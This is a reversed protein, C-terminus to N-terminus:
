RHSIVINDYYVVSFGPQLMAGVGVTGDSIPSSTDIFDITQQDNVFVKIHNNEVDVKITYWTSDYNEFPVTQIIRGINGPLSKVLVIDNYPATRFDIGYHTSDDIARFVIIKDIVNVGMIDLQFTFDEPTTINALYKGNATCSLVGNEVVWTGGLPSWNVSTTGSDQFDDKFIPRQTTTSNIPPSIYVPTLVPAAGFPPQPVNIQIRDPLKRTVLNSYYLVAKGLMDKVQQTYNSDFNDVPASVVLMTMVNRYRLFVTYSIAYTNLETLEHAFLIKVSDTNSFNKELDSIPEISLIGSMSPAGSYLRDLVEQAITTENTIGVIYTVNVERGQLVFDSNTFTRTHFNGGSSFEIPNDEMVVFGSPLDAVSPLYEQSNGSILEEVELKSVFQSQLQRKIFIAAIAVAIAASILLLIAILVKDRRTFEPNESDRM